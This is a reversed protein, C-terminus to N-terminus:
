EAVTLALQEVSCEPDKQKNIFGRRL